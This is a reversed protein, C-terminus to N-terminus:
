LHPVRVTLQQKTSAERGGCAWSPLPWVDRRSCVTACLQQLVAHQCSPMGQHQHHVQSTNKPPPPRSPASVCLLMTHM